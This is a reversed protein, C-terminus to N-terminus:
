FRSASTMALATNFLTFVVRWISLIFCDFPEGDILTVTIFMQQNKVLLEIHALNPVIVCEFKKTSCKMLREYVYVFYHFSQKTILITRINPQDFKVIKDWYFTDFYYNNYATLPVIATNAGERKFLFVTNDHKYRSNVYHSYIIKPANGKKRYKRHVCLFDVYYLPLKKDDIYCDLPRTTMSAILKNNDYMMSLYSKNNHAKFYNLVGDQPPMYKETKHPSYNAKIFHAFLAKKETPTQFVTDFYIKADYFKDKEPKGHQIIGPPFLWYRLNHFHFVPQRSWFPYKLKYFAVVLIIIIISALLLYM